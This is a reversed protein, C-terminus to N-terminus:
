TRALRDQSRALRRVPDPHEQSPTCVRVEYTRTSRAFAILHCFIPAGTRGRRAGFGYGFAGDVERVEIPLSARMEELEEIQFDLFTTADEAGRFAITLAVAFRRPDEPHEWVRSYGEIFGTRELADRVGGAPLYALASAVGDENLLGTPGDVLEHGAPGEAVLARALPHGPDESGGACATLALLVLTLARGLRPRPM